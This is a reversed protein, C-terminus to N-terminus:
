DALLGAQRQRAPTFVEDMRVLRRERHSAISAEVMALSWVNDQASTEPVAGHIM